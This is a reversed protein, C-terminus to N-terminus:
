ADDLGFMDQVDEKHVVDGFVIIVFDVKRVVEFFVIIFRAVRLGLLLGSLFNSFALGQESVKEL